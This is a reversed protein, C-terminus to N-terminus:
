KQASLAAEISAAVQKALVLYGVPKYHINKPIQL